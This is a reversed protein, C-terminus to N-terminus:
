YKTSFGRARVVTALRKPISAYLKKIFNVPVRRWEENVRQILEQKSRPPGRPDVVMQNKMRLWVNEIINLDPSQAPWPLVSIKRIRLYIKTFIAKHPPANDHQFIFAEGTKGLMSKTGQFLNDQLIEIYKEANINGDCVALKGVWKPWVSEWFMVSISNSFKPAYHEPNDDEGKKRWVRMTKSANSLSFRCEDTFVVNEWDKAQWDRMAKSWQVRKRRNQLSVFPKRKRIYNHIGYKHLIRKVWRKPLKKDPYRQNLEDTIVSLKDFRHCKAIRTVM